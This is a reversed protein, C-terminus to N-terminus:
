LIRLLDLDLHQLYNGRARTTQLYSSTSTTSCPFRKHLSDCSDDECYDKTALVLLENPHAPFAKYVEPQDQNFDKPAFADGQWRNPHAPFARCMDPQNQNFDKPGLVSEAWGDPNDPYATYGNM